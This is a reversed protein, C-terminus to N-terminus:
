APEVRELFDNFAVLDLFATARVVREDRMTLVWAYTNV